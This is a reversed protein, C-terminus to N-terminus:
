RVLRHVVLGPLDGEVQAGAVRREGVVAQQVAGVGIGAIASAVAQQQGERRGPTVQRGLDLAVQDAVGGQGSYTFLRRLAPSGLQQRGVETRSAVQVEVSICWGVEGQILDRESIRRAPIM